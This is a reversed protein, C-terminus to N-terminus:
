KDVPFVKDIVRYIIPVVTSPMLSAGALLIVGGVFGLVLKSPEDKALEVDGWKAALLLLAIGFIKALVKAVRRGLEDWKGAAIWQSM